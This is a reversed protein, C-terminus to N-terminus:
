GSSCGTISRPRSPSSRNVISSPTSRGRSSAHWDGTHSVASAMIASASAPRGPSARPPVARLRNAAQLASGRTAAVPRHAARLQLGAAPRELEGVDVVGVDVVGGLHHEGQSGHGAAVPATFRRDFSASRQSSPMCLESPPQAANSASLQRPRIRSSGNQSKPSTISGGLASTVAWATSTSARSPRPKPGGRPAADVPQEAGLLEVSRPEAAPADVVHVPGAGRDRREDDGAHRRIGLRDPPRDPPELRVLVLVAAPSLVRAGVVVRRPDTATRARRRLGGPSQEREVGGALARARVARPASAPACGVGRRRSPRARTCRSRNGM